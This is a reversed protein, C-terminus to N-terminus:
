CAITLPFLNICYFCLISVWGGHTRIWPLCHFNFFDVFQDVLGLGQADDYELNMLFQTLAKRGYFLIDVVSQYTLSPHQGKAISLIKNFIGHLLEPRDEGQSVYTSLTQLMLTEFMKDSASPGIQEAIYCLRRGM